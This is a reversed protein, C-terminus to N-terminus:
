TEKGNTKKVTGKKKETTNDASNSEKEKEKRQAKKAHKQKIKLDERGRSGSRDEKTNRTVKEVVTRERQVTTGL